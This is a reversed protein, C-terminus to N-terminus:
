DMARSGFEQLIYTVLKELEADTFETDSMEQMCSRLAELASRETKM